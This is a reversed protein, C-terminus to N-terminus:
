PEEGGGAYPDVSVDFARFCWNVNLAESWLNKFSVVFGVGGEGAFTQIEYRCISDDTIFVTLDDAAFDPPFEYGELLVQYTGNRVWTVSYGYGNAATGNANICGLAVAFLDEGDEGDAGDQGDKGDTGDEGDKGDIGNQGDQGDVGDAGPAGDKGDQGDIGDQGDEGDMGDKGDVGDQGDQGAPGPIPRGTETEGQVGDGAPEDAAQQADQAADVAEGVLVSGGLFLLDRAWDQLGLASGANFPCGGLSLSTLLAVSMWLVTSQRRM